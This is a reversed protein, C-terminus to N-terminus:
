FFFIFFITATKDKGGNAKWLEVVRRNNSYEGKVTTWLIQAQLIILNGPFRPSHYKSLGAQQLKV